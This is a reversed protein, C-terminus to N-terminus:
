MFIQASLLSWCFMRAVQGAVSWIMRLSAWGFIGDISSAAQAVTDKLATVDSEAGSGDLATTGAVYSQLAQAIVKVGSVISAKLSPLELNTAPPWTLASQIDVNLIISSVVWVQVILKRLCQLQTAQWLFSLTLIPKSYNLRQRPWLTRRMGWIALFVLVQKVPQLPLRSSIRMSLLISQLFSTLLYGVVLLRNWFLNQWVM